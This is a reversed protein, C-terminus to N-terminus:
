QQLCVLVGGVETDVGRGANPQSPSSLDVLSYCRSSWECRPTAPMSPTWDNAVDQMQGADQGNHFLRVVKHGTLLEQPITQLDKVRKLGRKLLLTKLGSKLLLIAAMARNMMTYFNLYGTGVGGWVGRM